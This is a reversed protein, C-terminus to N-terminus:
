NQYLVVEHNRRLMNAHVQTSKFYSLVSDKSINYEFVVVYDGPNYYGLDLKGNYDTVGSTLPPLSDAFGQATYLTIQVGGLRVYDVGKRKYTIEEIHGLGPLASDPFLEFEPPPEPVYSNNNNDKCSSLLLIIIFVLLLRKMGIFKLLESKCFGFM